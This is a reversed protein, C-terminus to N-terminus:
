IQFLDCSPSLFPLQAPGMCWSSLAREPQLPQLRTSESVGMRQTQCHLVARDHPSPRAALSEVLSSAHTPASSRSAAQAGRAIALSHSPTHCQSIWEKAVRWM